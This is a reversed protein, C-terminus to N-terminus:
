KSTKTETPTDMKTLINRVTEPMAALLQQTTNSEVGTNQMSSILAQYYLAMSNVTGTTSIVKNEAAGNENSNLNFKKSLSIM